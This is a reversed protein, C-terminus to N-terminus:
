RPTKTGLVNNDLWKDGCIILRRCTIYAVVAAQTSPIGHIHLPPTSPYLLLERPMTRECQCGLYSLQFYLVFDIFLECCQLRTLVKTALAGFDPTVLRLVVLGILAYSYLIVMGRAGTLRALRATFWAIDVVPKVMSPILQSMGDSLREVDKTLRADV